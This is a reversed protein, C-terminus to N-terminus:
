NTLSEWFRNRSAFECPWNDGSVFLQCRWNYLRSVRTAAKEIQTRVKGYDVNEGTAETNVRIGRVGLEQMHDLESDTINDPDIVAIARVERQAKASQLEALKDLILSNDTGYPSPQVLIINEAQGSGALSGEFALLQSYLAPVPSYAHSPAYPYNAPDFLHVHTDWSGSPLKWQVSDCALAPLDRM